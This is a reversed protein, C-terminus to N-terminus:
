TTKPTKTIEVYCPKVGSLAEIRHKDVINEAEDAKVGTVELLTKVLRLSSELTEPVVASAGEEYYYEIHHTDRSRIIIPLLPWKARLAKLINHTSEFDDITIVAAKAEGVQLKDWLQINRADGRIVPYGEKKYKSVSIGDKEIANYPIKQDELINALTLGVRGFGAVIIQNRKLVDPTVDEERRGKAYRDLYFALRTTFPTMLM